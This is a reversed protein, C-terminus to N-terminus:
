LSFSHSSNRVATVSQSTPLYRAMYQHRDARQNGAHRRPPAPGKRPPGEPGGNKTARGARAREQPHVDRWPNPVM